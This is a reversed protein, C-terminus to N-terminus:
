KEAWGERLSGVDGETGNKSVEGGSLGEWGLNDQVIQGSARTRDDGIGIAAEDGVESFKADRRIVLIGRHVM